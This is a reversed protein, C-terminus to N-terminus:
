EYVKDSNLFLVGLTGRGCHSTIVSGAVTVLVEEFDFVEKVLDVVLDVISPDCYSHTVFVRRKEPHPFMEHLDNVYARLVKQMSGRYKKLVSLKGDKMRIYPKLKLLNAGLMAVSSCRGGKHLYELTDVVFSTQVHSAIRNAEAVADKASMGGEVLDLTHLLLLSTGTSLVRSDVVYVGKMEEAALRAGQHSSSMDSSINFHIVEMGQDTFQKFFAGYENMNAAATKPLQKTESVYQFIDPPTINQGDFYTKEGLTVKLPVISIQYRELLEPSLDCTSDATFKVKM